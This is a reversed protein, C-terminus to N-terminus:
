RYSRNRKVRNEGSQPHMELGIHRGLIDIAWIDICISHTELQLITEQYRVEVLTVDEGTIIHIVEQCADVNQLAIGFFLDSTLQFQQISKKQENKM